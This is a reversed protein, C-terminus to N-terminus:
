KLLRRIADERYAFIRRIRRRVLPLAAEGLPWFPLRYDVTDTM